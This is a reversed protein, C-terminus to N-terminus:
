LLILILKLRGENLVVLSHLVWSCLCVVFQAVKNLVYKMLYRLRKLARVLAELVQDQEVFEDLVVKGDKWFAQLVVGFHYKGVNEGCLWSPSGPHQLRVHEDFRFALNKRIVREHKLLQEGILQQALACDYKVRNMVCKDGKCHELFRANM